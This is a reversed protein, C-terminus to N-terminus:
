AFHCLFKIRNCGFALHCLSLKGVLEGLAECQPIASNPVFYIADIYKILGNSAQLSSGISEILM